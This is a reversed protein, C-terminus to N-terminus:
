EETDRLVNGAGNWAFSVLSLLAVAISVWPPFFSLLWHLAAVIAITAIVLFLAVAARKM